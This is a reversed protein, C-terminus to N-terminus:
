EKVQSESPDNFGWSDQIEKPKNKLDTLKGFKIKKITKLYEYTDSLEMDGWIGKSKMLFESAQKRKEPSETDDGLVEKLKLFCEKKDEKNLCAVVHGDDLFDLSPSKKIFQVIEKAIIQIDETSLELEVRKKSIQILQKVDKAWKRFNTKASEFLEIGKLYEKNTILWDIHTFDRLFVSLKNKIIENFKGDKLEATILNDMFLKCTTPNDLQEDIDKEIDDKGFKNIYIEADKVKPPRLKIDELILDKLKSQTEKNLSSIDLEDLALWLSDIKNPNEKKTLPIMDPSKILVAKWWYEMLSKQEEPTLSFLNKKWQGLKTAWEDLRSAMKLSERVVAAKEVDVSESFIQLAKQAFRSRKETPAAELNKGLRDQFQGSKLYRVFNSEDPGKLSPLGTSGSFSFFNTPDFITANDPNTFQPDIMVLDAYNKLIEADKELINELINKGSISLTAPQNEARLSNEHKIIEEPHLVLKEYISYFKEQILLVKALLDPNDTIEKISIKQEEADEESNGNKDNENLAQGQLSVSQFAFKLSVIFRKIHRPNREFLRDDILFTKINKDQVDNLQIGSKKIEQSIFEKIKKPTALPLRWYVNFLKKLFRRGEELDKGTLQEKKNPNLEEAAYREIVTHDGTIVYSCEKHYFFTKLSDLVVKVTSSTCRDLDDVFVVIKEKDGLLENFKSDFEEATAIQAKRSSVTIVKILVPIILAAFVVGGVGSSWFNKIFTNIVQAWEIVTYGFLFPFIIYVIFALTPIIQVAQRIFPKWNIITKSQDFYLDELDVNSSLKNKVIRLFSRKLSVDEQSYQWPNFRIVTFKKTNLIPELLDLLVTKGEGWKGSIAFVMSDSEEGRKQAEYHDSIEDAIKEAYIKRDLSDM